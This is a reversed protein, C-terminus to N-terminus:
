GGRRDDGRRQARVWEAPDDDWAHGSPRISNAAGEILAWRDEHEVAREIATRVFQSRGRSGALRDVRSMLEDEVEIHM